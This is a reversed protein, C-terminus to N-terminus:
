KNKKELFKEAKKWAEEVTRGKLKGTYIKKFNAETMMSVPIQINGDTYFENVTKVIKKEVPKKAKRSM